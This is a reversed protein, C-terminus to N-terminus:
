QDSSAGLGALSRIREFKEKDKVDVFGKLGEAVVIFPPNSNDAVVWHDCMGMYDNFLYDLGM